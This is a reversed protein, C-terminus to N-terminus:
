LVGDAAAPVAVPEDRDVDHVKERELICVKAVVVLVQHAPGLDRVLRLPRVLKARKLGKARATALPQAHLLAPLLSKHLSPVVAVRSPPNDLLQLSTPKAANRNKQGPFGQLFPM